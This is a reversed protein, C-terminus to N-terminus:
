NVKVCEPKNGRGLVWKYVDTMQSAIKPWSYKDEILQRGRLGMARREGESLEMSDKIATELPDIGIDIWKGCRNTELDQWSTGKTTIVPKGSALAEAVVFGFNESFSPLVFFDCAAYLNTRIEGYVSGCFTTCQSAGAKNITEQVEVKHGRSNPGAILLHWDKYQRCLRGWASALNIVGKVPHIRSLFLIIKKGKLEPWKREIQSRDGNSLYDKVNLGNSIIAVPNKLGYQRISDLEQVATAHLCAANYLVRNQFLWGAIMKRWRHNNLAWPELMGHLSVILPIDFRVAHRRAAFSTYQWLGHSHIINVESCSSSLYRSMEPSFGFSNPRYSRGTYVPIHEDYMLVDEDTHCDHLSAIVPHFGFSRQHSALSWVVPAVGGALRSVSSVVHLVKHDSPKM